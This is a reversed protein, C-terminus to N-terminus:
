QPAGASEFRVRYIEGLTYYPFYLEGAEDEGFTSIDMETYSLERTQWGSASPALGWVRGSCYDAFLYIGRAFPFAAGRYVYGGTISCTGGLHDYEAVPLTLGESSCDETEFCHFGEMLKWGYNQGGPSDGPQFDVEEYMNQGVDGIYLDGTQRDFSFRWPNRFGMAWIEPRYGDKGVFPNSDPIRYPFEGSEVDVRLIKGLLTDPNQGNNYPDAAPGGDGVGIYLFGDRPSFALQGSKHVDAPPQIVLLPTESGADALNLNGASTRFRAIVTKFDLNTYAVYFYQKEAYNPPFAISYM